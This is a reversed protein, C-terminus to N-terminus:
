FSFNLNFTYNASPPLNTYIDTTVYDPDIGDDNARWIIGLNSVTANATISRFVKTKNLISQPFTYGLTIQQLRVHSADRINSNSNTYWDISAANIKRIGPVNTVAEDGAQRWRNALAKSTNLMGTFYNSSPYNRTTIDQKRFVHGMYYTIRVLLNFNKYQLNNIFGGFYPAVTRGQYGMYKSATSPATSNLVKGTSDFVQSQGVSDLGAWQYAWIGDIPYGDYAGKLETTTNRPFRNDSVKNTNYSINFTSTWRWDKTKVPVGTIGLELGHGKLTAANFTLFDWGYTSNYPLTYLLDETKKTYIDFTLNIRDNLLAADIGLNISKTTEWGLMNNGPISITGYPLQTYLDTSGVNITTYTQSTQGPTNGGVGYTLRLGLRDLVPVHQMFSEGTVDWRAGLSWLPQARRRRDVGIL